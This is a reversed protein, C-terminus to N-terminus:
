KTLWGPKCWVQCCVLLMTPSLPAVVVSIFIIVFCCDVFTCRCLCLTADASAPPGAPSNGALIKSDAFICSFMRRDFFWFFCISWLSIPPGFKDVAKEGGGQHFLQM